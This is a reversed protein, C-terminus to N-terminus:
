AVCLGELLRSLLKRGAAQSKEPHFQLGTVNRKNVAVTFSGNPGLCVASKYDGQVDFFYSHNFYFAEGASPAILQESSISEFTNWGIHCNLGQLPRVVGPILGLGKTAGHELSLDALVQMGVCLGIIPRGRKALGVLFEALGQKHLASMVSPFAGVGPLVVVDSNELANCEGTLLCRCGLAQFARVVSTQNGIGYDVVGVIKRSV